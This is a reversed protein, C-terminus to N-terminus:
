VEKFARVLYFYIPDEIYQETKLYPLLNASYQRDECMNISPFGAKLALEKKVPNLHNPNRYYKKCQPNGPIPEDYWTNYKLSHFTDGTIIGETELGTVQKMILHIGIVDPKNEVAKLVLNIYNHSVIDDDDIFAIYEGTADELLRQRKDGISKEGNDISALAEIDNTIQPKLIEVLRKLYEKRRHLTCILISLKKM